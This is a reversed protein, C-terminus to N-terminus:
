VWFIFLKYFLILFDNNAANFEKVKDMLIKMMTTMLILIGKAMLVEKMILIKIINKLNKCLVHKRCVWILMKPKKILTDWLKM